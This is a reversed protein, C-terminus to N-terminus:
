QVGFVLGTQGVKRTLIAASLLLHSYANELWRLWVAWPISTEKQRQKNQKIKKTEIAIHRIFVTM